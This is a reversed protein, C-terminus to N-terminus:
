IQKHYQLIVPSLLCRFCCCRTRRVVMWGILIRAQRTISNLAFIRVVTVKPDMKCVAYAIMCQERYLKTSLYMTYM